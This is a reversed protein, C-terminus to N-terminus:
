EETTTINANIWSEMAADVDQKLEDSQKDRSVITGDPAILIICPIGSIGYLDTPISQANIIQPWLIEHDKIAQITNEPEDWVAVSLFELGKGNYKEYLEKLVKVQRICPGCWSAWFDVITYHDPGVFDSLSKTEGNYTVSFDAYHKGVSTAEKKLLNDRLANVRKWQKLAPYDNLMADFEKLDYGSALSTFLMYGFANDANERMTNEMLSEYLGFISDAAAISSSDQPLAAYAQQLGEVKASFADEATALAGDSEIRREAPWVNINAKELYVTGLRNGSSILRAARPTSVDGIFVATGGDVLTSDIKDGTDYDMLYVYEGDSEPTLNVTITFPNAPEAGACSATLAFIASAALLKINM